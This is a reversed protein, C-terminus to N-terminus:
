SGGTRRMRVQARIANMIAQESRADQGLDRDVGQPQELSAGHEETGGTDLDAVDGGLRVFGSTDRRAEAAWDVPADQRARGRTPIAIESCASHETLYSVVWGPGLGEQRAYGIVDAVAQM